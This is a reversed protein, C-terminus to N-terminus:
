NFRTQLPNIETEHVLFFDEKPNGGPRPLVKYYRNFKGIVPLDKGKVYLQFFDRDCGFDGHSLHHQFRVSAPLRTEPSAQEHQMLTLTNQKLLKIQETLWGWEQSWIAKRARLRYLARCRTALVEISM